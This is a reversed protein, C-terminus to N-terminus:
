GRLAARLLQQGAETPAWLREHGFRPIVGCRDLVAMTLRADHRIQNAPVDGTEARWGVASIAHTLRTDADERVAELRETREHRPTAALEDVLHAPAPEQGALDVMIVVGAVQAFDGRDLPLGEAVARWLALPDEALQEGRETRCLRGKHKRVLGLAQIAERFDAVQPTQVERNFTGVWEERLNLRDAVAEVDVPRLYGAATLSLGDGVRNLFWSIPAVMDACVQAPPEAAQDLRALEVMHILLRSGHEESQRVTDRLKRSLEPVPTAVAQVRGDAQLVDFTDLDALIDAPQHRGFTHEVREAEWPEVVAQPNRALTILIEVLEQYGPVGGCDEPPCAREGALVRADDDHEEEALVILQHHWHDGFDYLYTAESGVRPLLDAATAESEDQITPADSFPADEEAPEPQWQHVGGFADERIFAHLHADQWGMAEQLVRHLMALPMDARIRLERWIP